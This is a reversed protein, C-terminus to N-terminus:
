TLFAVTPLWDFVRTVKPCAMASEPVDNIRPSVALMVEIRSLMPTIPM